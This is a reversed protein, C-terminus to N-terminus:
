SILLEEVVRPDQMGVFKVAFGGPFQRVVRGVVKGVALVTGLEPTVDAAVAAGSASLDLVFCGKVTGDALIFASFPYQPVCRVQARREAVELNKYKEFWAIKDALKSREEPSAAIRMLFGRRGLLRQITGELKGFHEIEASVWEGASGPVPAVLAVGSASINIARCAFQWPEVGAARRNWLSYRGPLSVVIRLERRRETVALDTEPLVAPMPRRSWRLKGDGPFVACANVIKETSATTSGAQERPAGSRSRHSASGAGAPRLCLRPAAVRTQRRSLGILESSPGETYAEEREINRLYLMTRNEQDVEGSYSSQDNGGRAPNIVNNRSRM